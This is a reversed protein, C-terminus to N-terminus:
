LPLIQLSPLLTTVENRYRYTVCIWQGYAEAARVQVHGTWRGPFLMQLTDM